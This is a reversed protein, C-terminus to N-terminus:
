YKPQEWPFPAPQTPAQPQRGVVNYQPAQITPQYGVPPTPIPPQVPPQAPPTSSEKNAEMTAAAKKILEEKSVDTQPTEVVEAESLEKESYKNEYVKERTETVKERISGEEGYRETTTTIIEKILKNGM